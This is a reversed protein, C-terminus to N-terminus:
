QLAKSLGGGAKIVSPFSANMKNWESAELVSVPNENVQDATGAPINFGSVCAM